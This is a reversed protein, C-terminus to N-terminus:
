KRQVSKFHQIDGNDIHLNNCIFQQECKYCLNPHFRRYYTACDNSFESNDTNESQKHPMKENRIVCAVFASLNVCVEDM